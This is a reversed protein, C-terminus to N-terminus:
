VKRLADFVGKTADMLQQDLETDSPLKLADARIDKSRTLLDAVMEPGVPRAHIVCTIRAAAHYDYGYGLSLAANVMVAKTGVGIGTQAAVQMSEALDASFEITTETFQYRSPALSKLLEVMAASAEPTATEGVTNKIIVMLRGISTVYDVNMEKQANAISLGMRGIIAPLHYLQSTLRDAQRNDSPM